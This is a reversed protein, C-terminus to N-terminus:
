FHAHALKCRECLYQVACEYSQRFRVKKNCDFDTTLVYYIAKSIVSSNTRITRLYPKIWGYTIQRKQHNTKSTTANSSQKNTILALWALGYISLFM